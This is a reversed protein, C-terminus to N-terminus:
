TSHANIMQKSGRHSSRPASICLNVCNSCAIKLTNVTRPIKSFMIFVCVVCMDVTHRQPFVNLRLTTVHKNYINKPSYTLAETNSKGTQHNAHRVDVWFVHVCFLLCKIAYLLRSLCFRLAHMATIMIM